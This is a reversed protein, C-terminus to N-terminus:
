SGPESFLCASLPSLLEFWLWLTDQLSVVRCERAWWQGHHKSGRSGQGAGHGHHKNGRSGRGAGYGHHENGQSGLGVAHGHHEKEWSGRGAGHGHHENGWSRRGGVARQGAPSDAWTQTTHQGM